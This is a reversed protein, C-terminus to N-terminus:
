RKPDLNPGRIKTLGWINNAMQAAQSLLKLNGVELSESGLGRAGFLGFYNGNVWKLGCLSQEQTRPARPVSKAVFSCWSGSLSSSPKKCSCRRPDTRGAACM